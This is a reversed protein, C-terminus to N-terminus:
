LKVFSKQSLLLGSGSNWLLSYVGPEFATTSLRLVEQGNTVEQELVVKGLADVIRVQGAEKAQFQLNLENKVPNPFFQLATKEADPLSTNWIGVRKSKSTYERFKVVVSYHGTKTPIWYNSKSTGIEVDDLYWTYSMGRPAFLTDNILYLPAQPKDYIQQLNMKGEWPQNVVKLVSDNSIDIVAIKDPFSRNSSRYPFIYTQNVHNMVAMQNNLLSKYEPAQGKWNVSGDCYNATGFRGEDHGYLKGSYMNPVIASPMLSVNGSKQAYGECNTGGHYGNLALFSLESSVMDVAIWVLQNSGPMLAATQGFVNFNKDKRELLQKHKNTSLDVSRLTQQSDYLLRNRLFDYSIFRTNGMSYIPSFGYFSEISYDVLDIVHLSGRYGPLDGLFYYYGNFPDISTTFSLNSNVMGSFAILTDRSLSALDTAVFFSDAFGYIKRDTIPNINKQSWAGLSAVLCGFVLVLKKM